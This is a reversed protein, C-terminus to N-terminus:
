GGGVTLHYFTHGSPDVINQAGGYTLNVTNGSANAVLTGLVMIPNTNVGAANLTSNEDNVWTSSSNAGWLYNVSITGQNTLVVNGGLYFYASPILIDATPLITKSGTLCYVRGTMSILGTGDITSGVGQLRLQEIGTGANGTHTGYIAYDNFVVMRFAQNDLVGYEAISLNNASDASTMTVVHGSDVVINSMSPPNCNCDWTNPDNFNGSQVSRIASYKTVPQNVPSAAGCGGTATSIVQVNGVGEAGWDLSVASTGAGSALSGGTISWSYTYGSTNVVSYGTGTSFAAISSPGSIVSTPLPHVTVDLSVPVGDGCANSEIVEVQGAVGTSGWDVTIGSTWSGSSVVGGSITWAYTSGPTDVVSYSVGADNTCVSASGTILSTVPPSCTSSSGLAFESFDNMGSRSAILGSPAVHTGDLLWPSAGSNRKIIRVEADFPFSSFGAGNLGLDYNTSGLGNGKELTWYGESFANGISDGSEELPLGNNGPNTSTFHATLTGASLNTFNVTATQTVGSAGVPFEIDTGTSGAEIWRAFRGVIRGSTYALSGENAADTGLYLISTGANVEGQVLSLTNSVTVNDSLTLIGSEKQVLLDYYSEGSPNTITQDTTGIFRVEGTGDILGDSNTWNGELSINNNSRSFTSAINLDGKVIMDGGALTKITSGSIELHYYTGDQPLKINHNNIT